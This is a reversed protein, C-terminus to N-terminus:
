NRVVGLYSPVSGERGKRPSVDDGLTAGKVGRGRHCPGRKEGQGKKGEREKREKNKASLSSPPCKGRENEKEV